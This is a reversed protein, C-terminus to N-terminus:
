SQMPAPEPASAAGATPPPVNPRMLQKRHAMRPSAKRNADQRMQVVVVGGVIVAIAAAAGLPVWFRLRRRPTQRRSAEREIVRRQEDSLGAAHEHKLGETVLRATRRIAAVQDAATADNALMAEVARAHEDDLEGLAYATLVPDDPEFATM